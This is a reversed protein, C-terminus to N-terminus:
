SSKGGGHQQYILSPDASPELRGSDTGQPLPGRYTTDRVPHAWREEGSQLDLARIEPPQLTQSGPSVDTQPHVVHVLLQETVFFPATPGGSHLEAVSAGTALAVVKWDFESAPPPTRRSVLLHRTDASPYHATHSDRAIEIEPLSDGSAALWRQLVTARAGDRRVRSVTAYVEGCRWVPTTLRGAEVLRALKAPLPPTSTDPQSTAVTWTGADVRFAGQMQRAPSPPATAPPEAGRMDTETYTWAVTFGGTTPRARVRFKTAPGDDINARVGDPLDVSVTAEQSGRTTVDLVVLNLTGGKSEAQAVLLNDLPLLPKQALSTTWLTEGSPLAIADIGARTNMAYCVRKDADVVVGPRLEFAEGDPAIIQSPRCALSPLAILCGFLCVLQSCLVASLGRRARARVLHHDGRIRRAPSFPVGCQWM